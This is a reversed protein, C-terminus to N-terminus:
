RVSPASGASSARPLDRPRTPRRWARDRARWSWSRGHRSRSPRSRGRGPPSPSPRCAAAPGHRPSRDRPRCRRGRPPTGRCPAPAAAALAMRAQLDHELVDRRALAHGEDLRMGPPEAARDRRMMEAVVAVRDELAADTRVEIAQRDGLALLMAQRQPAGRGRAAACNKRPVSVAGCVASVLSHAQPQAPM